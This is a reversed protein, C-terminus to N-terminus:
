SARTNIIRIYCGSVFSNMDSCYYFVASIILRLLVCFTAGNISLVIGLSEVFMSITFAASLGYFKVTPLTSADTNSERNQKWMMVALSHKLLNSLVPLFAVAIFWCSCNIAVDTAAFDNM